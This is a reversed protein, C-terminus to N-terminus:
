QAASARARGAAELVFRYKDYEEHGDTKVGLFEAPIIQLEVMWGNPSRVLLQYDRYGASTKAQLPLTRPRPPTLRPQAHPAALAAVTM